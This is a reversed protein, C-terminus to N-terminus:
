PMTLGLANYRADLVDWVIKFADATNGNITLHSMVYAMDKPHDNILDNIMASLNTQNFKFDGKGNVAVNDDAETFTVGTINLFGNGNTTDGADILGAGITLRAGTTGFDYVNFYDFASDLLNPDPGM